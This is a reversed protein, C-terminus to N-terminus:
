CGHKLTVKDLLRSCSATQQVAVFFFDPKTKCFGSKLVDRLPSFCAPM